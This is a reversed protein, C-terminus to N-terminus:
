NDSEEDQNLLNFMADILDRARWSEKDDDRSTDTASEITSKVIEKTWESKKINLIDEQIYKRWAWKGGRRLSRKYLNRKWKSNISEEGQTTFLAAMVGALFQGQDVSFMILAHHILMKLTRSRWQENNQVWWGHNALYNEELGMHVSVARVTIDTMFYEEPKVLFWIFYQLAHQRDYDHEANYVPAFVNAFVENRLEKLEFPWNPQLLAARIFAPPLGAVRQLMRQRYDTMIDRGVAPMQQTMIVDVPFLYGQVKIVELYQVPDRLQEDLTEPLVV